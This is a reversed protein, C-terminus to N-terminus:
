RRRQRYADIISQTLRGRMSPNYGNEKAWRRIRPIEDDPARDAPRPTKRGRGTAVRRGKAAYGSLIARLTAANDGTLDIAYEIGDLGFRVTERAEAGDLDDMLDM